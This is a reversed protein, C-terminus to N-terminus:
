WSSTFTVLLVGLAVCSGSIALRRHSRWLFPSGFLLFAWGAMALMAAYASWGFYQRAHPTVRIAIQEGIVIVQSVILAWKWFSSTRTSM